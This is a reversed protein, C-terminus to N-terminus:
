ALFPQLFPELEKLNPMPCKRFRREEDKCLSEIRDKVKPLYPIHRSEIMGHTSEHVLLCAIAGLRLVALRVEEPVPLEHQGFQPTSSRKALLTQSAQNLKALDM